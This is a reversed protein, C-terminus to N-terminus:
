EDLRYFTGTTMKTDFNSYIHSTDYAIVGYSKANSLSKINSTVCAVITQMDTSTLDAYTYGYKVTGSSANSKGFDIRTTSTFTVTKSIYVYVRGNFYDVLFYPYIVPDIGYFNYLSSAYTSNDAYLILDTTPTCPFSYSTGDSTKWAKCDYVPAEISHGQKISYFALGENNEDYFMVDYGNELGELTGEPLKGYGEILSGVASTLDADTRETKANADDILKQIQAKISTFDSM